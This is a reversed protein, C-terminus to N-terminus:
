SGILLLRRRTPSDLSRRSTHHLESEVQMSFHLLPPIQQINRVMEPGIAFGLSSTSCSSEKPRLDQSKQSNFYTSQDSLNKTPTVSSQCVQMKTHIASGSGYGKLSRRIEDPTPFIIRFKAKGSPANKSTSMAKLLTNEFWKDTFSAISSVQLVIEPADNQALVSKLIKKLGLWGWSTEQAGDVEQKGPVSAVLAAKIESFDYNKLREVLPKCIVRKGDYAELYNLFDIKFKSGSGFDDSAQSPSKGDLLPLLPSKWLAQTMGRWDFDQMNATHIIIQATNDHRLLVLM